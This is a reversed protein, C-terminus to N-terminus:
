RPSDSSEEGEADDAPEEEGDSEEGADASDDAGDDAGDDAKPLNLGRLGAMMSDLLGGGAPKLTNLNGQALGKAESALARMADTANEMALHKDAVVICQEYLERSKESDRDLSFQYVAGLDSYTRAVEPDIKIAMEYAAVADDFRSTAECVVAYTQWVDHDQPDAAVIASLISRCAALDGRRHFADISGILSQAKATPDAEARIMDTLTRASIEVMKELARGSAEYNNEARYRGALRYLLTLDPDKSRDAVDRAADVAKTPINQAEYFWTLQGLPEVRDRPLLQNAQNLDDVAQQWLRNAEDINENQSATWYGFATAAGRLLLAEGDDPTRDLAENALSIAEDPLNLRYVYFQGLAWVATSNDDPRLDFARVLNTEAAHYADDVAAQGAGQSFLQNISMEHARGLALSVDHDDDPVLSELVRLAQESDLQALRVDSLALRLAREDGTGASLAGTLLDAASSLKGQSTLAQAETLEDVTLAPTTLAALLLAASLM